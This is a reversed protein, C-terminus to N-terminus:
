VDKNGLHDMTDLITPMAADLYVFADNLLQERDENKQTPRSVDTIAMTM